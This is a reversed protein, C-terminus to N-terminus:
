LKAGDSNEKCYELYEQETPFYMRKGDPPVPGTYGFNVHYKRNDDKSIKASSRASFDYGRSLDCGLM